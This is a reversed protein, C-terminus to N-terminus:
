FHATYDSCVAFILTNFAAFAESCPDQHNLEGYLILQPTKWYSANDALGGAGYEKEREAKRQKEKERPTKNQRERGITTKTLHYNKHITSSESVFSRISKGKEFGIGSTCRFRGGILSLRKPYFKMEPDRIAILNAVEGECHRINAGCASGEVNHNRELFGGQADGVGHRLDYIEGDLWLCYVPGLLLRPDVWVQNLAKIGDFATLETCGMIDRFSGTKEDVPGIRHNGDNILGLDILVQNAAIRGAITSSRAVIASIWTQITANLIHYPAAAGTSVSILRSM